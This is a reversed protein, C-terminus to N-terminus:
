LEQKNSPSLTGIDSIQQVDIWFTESPDPTYGDTTQDAASYDVWKDRVTNSGIPPNVTIVRRVASGSPDYITVKYRENAQDLPYPGQYGPVFNKRTWHDFEFRADYTTGDITKTVDRVPFSRVNNFNPGVSIAEVDNVTSNPPVIKINITQGISVGVLDVYIGSAIFSASVSVIRHGAIRDASCNTGRLGRLLHTFQWNQDDIQTVDRAGFIELVQWTEDLVAFWQWGSNVVDSETASIFPITGVCDFTISAVASDDWTLTSSGFTEGQPGAELTDNLTGIAHEDNITGVRHWTNQNDYSVFVGAGAWREGYPSGAVIAVAPAIGNADYIPPGDIIAAIPNPISLLSSSNFQSASQVPSGTVDLDVMEIVGKVHVFFAASKTREIIRVIYDNDEDDTVTIIDNELLDIYNPPLDAEFVDNNIWARRIITACLNRAQKRTMSFNTLDMSSLVRNIGDMSPNRLSWNQHNTAYNEDIDQYYLNLDTVIDEEVQQTFAFKEFTSNGYPRPGLHSIRSGNVIQVVDCNNIHMFCEVGNRTQSVIQGVLMLTTMPQEGAIPGSVYMGEFPADDVGSVDIDSQSMGYRDCLQTIALRWTCTADPRIIAETVPPMSGGWDDLNLSQMVIYSIGRFGGVAGAGEVAVITPDETQTEDGPHFNTDIDYGQPLYGDAVTRHNFFEIVSANTATGATPLVAPALSTFLIRNAFIFWVQYAQNSSIGTFNTLRLQDGVKFVEHLRPSRSTGGQDLRLVGNLGVSFTFQHDVVADKVQVVSAPSSPIGSNANVSAVTQNTVPGLEITSPNEGHETVAVVKWYGVNVDLGSTIVWNSLKVIQDVEFRDAFDDEFFDNMEILLNSGSQSISMNYSTTRSINRDRWLILQDNILFQELRLTVRDNLTFAVDVNVHKSPTSSKLKNGVNTSREKRNQWLVQSPVRVKQGIAWISPAGASMNDVPVGLTDKAQGRKERKTLLNNVISSIVMTAVMKGIPVAIGM